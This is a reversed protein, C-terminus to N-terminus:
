LVHPAVMRRPLVAQRCACAAGVRFAQMWVGEMHDTAVVSVPSIAHAGAGGEQWGSGAPKVSRSMYAHQAARGPGPWTDALKSSLVLQGARSAPKRESALEGAPMAGLTLTKETLTYASAALLQQNLKVSVLTADKRRAGGLGRRALVNTCAPKQFGRMSAHM